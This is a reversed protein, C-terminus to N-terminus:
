PPGRGLERIEWGAATIRATIEPTPTLYWLLLAARETM